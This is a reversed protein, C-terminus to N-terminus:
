PQDGERDKKIEERLHLIWSFIGIGICIAGGTQLDSPFSPYMFIGGVILCIYFFAKYFKSKNM